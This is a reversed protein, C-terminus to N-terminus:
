VCVCVCVCVCSGDLGDDFGIPDVELICGLEM